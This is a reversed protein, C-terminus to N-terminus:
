ISIFTDLTALRPRSVIFTSISILKALRPKGPKSITPKGSLDTASDFSLTLVAITLEPM